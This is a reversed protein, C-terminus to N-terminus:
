KKRLKAVFFGEYLDSPCICLTGIISVPLLIADSFISTDIPVIEIKQMDLFKQINQENEKFLISCTSYIM